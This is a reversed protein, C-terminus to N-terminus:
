CTATALIFRGLIRLPWLIILVVHQSEYPLELGCLAHDGFGNRLARALLLDPNDRKAAAVPGDDFAAVLQLALKMQLGVIQTNAGVRKRPFHIIENCFM